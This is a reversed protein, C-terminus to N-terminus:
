ASSIRRKTRTRSSATSCHGANGGGALVRGADSSDTPTYMNELVVPSHGAIDISGTLRLTSGEGYTVNQTLSNFFVMGALLPTLKRDSIM